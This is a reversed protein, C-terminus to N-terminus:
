LWQVEEVIYETRFTASYVLVYMSKAHVIVSVDRLSAVTPISAPFPVSKREGGSAKTVHEM